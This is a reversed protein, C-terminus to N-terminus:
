RRRRRRRRRVNTALTAPWLTIAVFGALAGPLDEDDIAALVVIGVCDWAVWALVVM